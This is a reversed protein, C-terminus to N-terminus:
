GINFPKTGHEGLSGNWSCYITCEVPGYCNNFSQVDDRWADVATQTVAEGALTLTQLTPVATPSLISAITPTLCAWNAQAERIFGELDNVRQEESPVCVCAGRDLSTFVEQLSIDFVYSAFQLVRSSSGINLASGHADMSTSVASHSLLVGKPVGTSGSTYIVFAIDSASPEERPLHQASPLSELVAANDVLVQVTHESFLHRQREGVLILTASVDSIILSHRSTPHSADLAVVTAGAKLIALMAVITWASKEFWVPVFSGRGVGLSVLHQSLAEAASDLEGYTFSRDWGYVAPRAPYLLAENEFNEQVLRRASRLRRSNWARIEAEDEPSAPSLSSVPQDLPLSNLQQLLHAFQHLIRRMQKDALLGADYEVQIELRDTHTTVDLVLDLTHFGSSARDCRELGLPLAPGEADFGPQIVLPNWFSCAQEAGPSLQRINQLGMQEFGIM